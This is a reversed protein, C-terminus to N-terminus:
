DPEGPKGSFYKALRYRLLCDPDSRRAVGKVLQQQTLLIPMRADQLIFALREQPYALDLPVYAGGAKLIGLIGVVLDLSREVYIGVLVEPKVGLKQLYRALQNARVNLEQYTLHEGEFIVAVADPTREVQAEFLQHICQGQSYNVQTGNWDVLLQHREAQTLLPMDKLRQEPNAVM